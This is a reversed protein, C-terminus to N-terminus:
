KQEGIHTIQTDPYFQNLHTTVAAIVATDDSTSKEPFILTIFRISASLVTLVLFVVALAILCNLLFDSNEVM